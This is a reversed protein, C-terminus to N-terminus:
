TAFNVEKHNLKYLHDKYKGERHEIRLHESRDLVLELNEIRNDIKIGNKHHIDETLLLYRGLHKEMVLRHERIYGTKTKYPHEQPAKVLIYGAEHITRGNNWRPNKKEMFNLSSACSRSCFRGRGRQLMKFTVKIEKDCKLCKKIM